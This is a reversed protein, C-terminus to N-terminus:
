KIQFQLTVNVTVDQAGPEIIPAEGGGVGFGDKSMAEMRAFQPYYGGGENISLLKGLRFDGAKALDEAKARAKEIAQARAESQAADIDDITFYPGSITNAGAETVGSLIEGIKDFARVKVSVSTRVTYGVIESPPCPEADAFNCRYHLYRPTVSYNSTQIDQDAVGANKILDIM